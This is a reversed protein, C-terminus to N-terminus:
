MIMIMIRGKVMTYPAIYTEKWDGTVKTIDMLTNFIRRLCEVMTEGRKKLSELSIGNLEIGKGGKM